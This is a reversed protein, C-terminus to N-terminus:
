PASREGEAEGGVVPRAVNPDDHPTGRNFRDRPAGTGGYREADQGGITTGDETQEGAHESTDGLPTSDDSGIISLPNQDAGPDGADSLDNKKMSNMVLFTIFGAIILIVLVGAIVYGM